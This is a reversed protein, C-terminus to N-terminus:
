AYYSKLHIILVDPLLEQKVKKVKRYSDVDPLLKVIPIQFRSNGLSFVELSITLVLTSITIHLLIVELVLPVKVPFFFVDLNSESGRVQDELQSLNPNHQVLQRLDQKHQDTHHYHNEGVIPLYTQRHQNM